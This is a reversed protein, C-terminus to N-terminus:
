FTASMAMAMLTAAIPFMAVNAAKLWLGFLIVTFATAVAALDRIAGRRGLAIALSGRAAMVSVTPPAGLPVDLTPLRLQLEPADATSFVHDREAAGIGRAGGASYAVWAVIGIALVVLAASRNPRSSFTLSTM